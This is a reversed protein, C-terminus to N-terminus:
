KGEHAQGLLDMLNRSKQESLSKMIDELHAVAADLCDCAVKARRRVEDSTSKRLALEVSIKLDYAQLGLQAVQSMQEFTGDQRREDLRM